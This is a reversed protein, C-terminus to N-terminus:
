EEYYETHRYPNVTYSTHKFHISSSLCKKSNAHHTDSCGPHCALALRGTGVKDGSQLSLCRPAGRAESLYSLTNSLACLGPCKILHCRLEGEPHGVRQVHVGLWTGRGVAHRQSAPKEATTTDFMSRKPFNFCVWFRPTLTWALEVALSAHPAWGPCGLWYDTITAPRPIFHFYM